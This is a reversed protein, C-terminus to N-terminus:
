GTFYYEARIRSEPVIEWGVEKLKPDILKRRTDAENM